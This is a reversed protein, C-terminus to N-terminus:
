APLRQAAKICKKRKKGKKKKCKRLAAAKQGTPGPSTAPPPAPTIAPTTPPPPQQAGDGLFRALGFQSGAAGAVVPKVGDLALGSGFDSGGFDATAVGNTGFGTDPAGGSTFRAVGFDDDTSGAVVIQDGSLGVADAGDLLSSVLKGDGDFTGDLSGDTNYRAIALASGGADATSGAVVLKGDGDVLVSNAVDVTDGTGFDTTVKGTAGGFVDDDIEGASDYRAIAFDSEGGPGQTGSLGVAIVKGGSVALDLATDQGSGGFDTTVKGDGGGFGATDLAGMDDLRAIAFDISAGTDTDGGVVTKTGDVAVAKGLDYANFSVTAIGDGGFGTDPAGTADYRAVAFDDEAANGNPYTEGAVVIKTGALAADSAVDDDGDSSLDTTLKGDGGGFGPDPVGQADYRALAFDQDAGVGIAFDGSRGAVVIDTGDLLVEVAADEQAPDVDTTVKGTGAGFTPDLDGAAAFAGAAGCLALVGISATIALAARRSDRHDGM